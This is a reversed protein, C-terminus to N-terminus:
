QVSWCTGFFNYNQVISCAHRSRPHSFLTYPIYKCLFPVFDLFMIFVKVISLQCSIKLIFFFYEIVMEKPAVDFFNTKPPAWWLLKKQKQYPFYNILNLLSIKVSLQPRVGVGLGDGWHVWGGLVVM